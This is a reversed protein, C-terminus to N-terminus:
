RARRTQVISWLGSAGVAVLPAVRTAGFRVVVTVLGPAAGATMGQKVYSCCGGRALGLPWSAGSSSSRGCPRRPESRRELQTEVTKAGIEAHGARLAVGPAANIVSNGRM